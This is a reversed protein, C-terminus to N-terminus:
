FRVKVPYSPVGQNSRYIHTGLVPSQLYISLPVDTLNCFLHHISQFTAGDPNQGIDSNGELKFGGSSDPGELMHLFLRASSCLFDRMHDRREERRPLNYAGGCFRPDALDDIDPYHRLDAIWCAASTVLSKLDSDVATQDQDEIWIRFRVSRYADQNPHKYHTPIGSLDTDVNSGSFGEGYRTFWFWSIDYKQILPQLILGAVAEVWHENTYPTAWPVFIRTQLPTM